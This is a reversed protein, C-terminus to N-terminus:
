KYHIHYNMGATATCHLSFDNAIVRKHGLLAAVRMSTGGMCVFRKAEDKKILVAFFHFVSSHKEFVVISPQEIRFHIPM